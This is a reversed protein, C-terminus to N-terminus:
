SATGGSFLNTYFSRSLSEMRSDDIPRELESQTYQDNLDDRLYVLEFTQQEYKVISRLHEGVQDTFYSELRSAMTTAM